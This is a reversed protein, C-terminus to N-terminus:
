RYAPIRSKKRRARVAEETRDLMRAINRDTDTGLLAIEARTWGVTFAPIGLQERKCHVCSYHRGLRRGIERDSATGILAIEAATWPNLVFAPLKLQERKRWVATTSKGFQRALESDPATGLLAIEHEKWRQSLLPIRLSERKQKVLKVPLGLANAVARDSDTGILALEDDMWRRRSPLGYAEPNEWMKRSRESQGRKWEESKPRRGLERCAAITNPHSARGKKVASLKARVEPKHMAEKAKARVEPTLKEIAYEIGLRRTGNTMRSVQLAQRWKWVTPKGVGWHHAVAIESETRVARILDGCVIPSARNNRRTCPWQIPADTMGKVTVERGRYECALKDGPSCQPAAYPGYLLKFRESDIMGGPEQDCEGALLVDLDIARAQRAFRRAGDSWKKGCRRGNTWRCPMENWGVNYRVRDRLVGRRACGTRLCGRKM